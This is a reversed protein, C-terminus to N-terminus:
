NLPIENLNRGHKRFFAEGQARQAFLSNTLLTGFAAMQDPTLINSANQLIREHSAEVQAVYKDSDEQSGMFANDVEGMIGHTLQYPEAKLIKLLAATQDENLPTASSQGNLLDVMAYAPREMNFGKYRAYGADGLLSHLQNEFTMQADILAQKAEAPDSAGGIASYKQGGEQWWDGVLRAFKDAQEPTLQLEQILRSYFSKVKASQAARAAENSAPDNAASPSPAAKAETAALQERLMGVEGRLRLLEATNGNAGSSQSQLDALARRAEDRERTLQDVQGTAPAQDQLSQIQSRLLSAQHAEYLGVGVSTGLVAILITKQITTMAIYKTVSATATAALTTGALAGSSLAGALGAPASIVANASLVPAVVVASATVGRRVFQARLRDLARSVRKQAADDSVGLLEGIARYDRNKFFRLLLADREEDSLEAMAEDLIPRIRDWEPAPESAAEIQEMAQRERARRRHNERLQNLAAFRTSRFLWGLVSAKEDMSRVLAPAKRALDTFVSQAVDRALDPAVAQRLASSYILDTHRAVIERFAAEDGHEAYARLLQVDSQEQMEGMLCGGAGSESM